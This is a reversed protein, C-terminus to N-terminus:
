DQANTKISEALHSPKNCLIEVETEIKNEPRNM